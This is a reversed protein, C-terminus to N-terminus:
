IIKMKIERYHDHEERTESVVAVVKSEEKKKLEELKPKVEIVTPAIIEPAKPEIVPSLAAENSENPIFSAGLLITGV